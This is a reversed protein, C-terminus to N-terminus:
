TGWVYEIIKENLAADYVYKYEGPGQGIRGICGLFQGQHDFLKFPSAEDSIGIYNDSIYTRWGRVLASDSDELHVIKFDTIWDSLKTQAVDRNILSADCIYLTDSKSIEYSLSHDEPLSRCANILFVLIIGGVIIAANKM